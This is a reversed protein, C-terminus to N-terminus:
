VEFAFGDAKGPRDPSIPRDRIDMAKVEILEDLHDIGSAARTKLPGPSLANVRIGQQGLEAALYRRSKLVL